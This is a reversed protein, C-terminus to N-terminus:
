KAKINENGSKSKKATHCPVFQTPSQTYRIMKCIDQKTTNCMLKGDQLKFNGKLFHNGWAFHEGLVDRRRTPKEETEATEGLQLM